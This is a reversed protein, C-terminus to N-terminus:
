PILSCVLFFFSFVFMRRNLQYSNGKESNQCPVASIGCGNNGVGSM